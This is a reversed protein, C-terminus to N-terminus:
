SRHDSKPMFIVLNHKPRFPHFEQTNTGGSRKPNNGKACYMRSHSMVVSHSKVKGEWAIAVVDPRSPLLSLAPLVLSHQAYDIINCLRINCIVLIALMVGKGLLRKDMLLDMNQVKICNLEVSSLMIGVYFQEYPM